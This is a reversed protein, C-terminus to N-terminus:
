LDVLLAAGIGGALPGLEAFGVTPRPRLGGAFLTREYAAAIPPLYLEPEASLGGSLVIRLANVVEDSAARKTIYGMAGLDLARLM